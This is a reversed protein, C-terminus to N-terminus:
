LIRKEIQDPGLGFVITSKQCIIHCFPTHLITQKVLRFSPVFTVFNLAVDLNGFCLMLYQVAYNVEFVQM